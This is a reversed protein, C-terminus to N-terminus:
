RRGPDRPPTSEVDAPSRSSLPALLAKARCFWCTLSDVHMHAGNPVTERLLKRAEELDRALQDRERRMSVSGECAAARVKEAQVLRREAALARARWDVTPYQCADEPTARWSHREGPVMEHDCTRCREGGSAPTSM